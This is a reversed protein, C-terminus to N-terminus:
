QREGMLQDAGQALLLAALERGLREAEDPHGSASLRVQERGDLGVVAATLHLMPEPRRSRGAAGEPVEGPVSAPEGLATPVARLAAASEGGRLEAYAGVPASCGAELAALVVREAAVASRTARDDIAALLRVLDARDARCEIALAGQGPAPLMQEPDLVEAVMELRGIRGLGAFALVV